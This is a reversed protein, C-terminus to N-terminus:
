KVADFTLNVDAHFVFIVCSNTAQVLGSVVINHLNEPHLNIEEEVEKLVNKELDIGNQISIESPQLGGGVLDVNQSNGYKKMGFVYYGDVTRLLIGTNVHFPCVSFDAVKKRSLEILGRVASYKIPSFKLHTAGNILEDLNELRCYTGDWLERGNQQARVKLEEWITVLEDKQSDLQLSNPVWTITYDTAKHIKKNIIQQPILLFNEQLFLFGM